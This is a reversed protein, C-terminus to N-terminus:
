GGKSNGLRYSQMESIDKLRGMSRRLPIEFLDSPLDRLSRRHSRIFPAQWLCRYSKEPRRLVDKIKMECQIEQIEFPSM